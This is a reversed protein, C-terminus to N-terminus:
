IHLNPKLAMLKGIRILFNNIRVTIMIRRARARNAPRIERVAWRSPSVSYISHYFLRLRKVVTRKRPSWDLNCEVTLIILM